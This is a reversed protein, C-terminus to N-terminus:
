PSCARRYAAAAPAATPDSAPSVAKMENEALWKHPTKEGDFTVAYYPPAGAHAEAVAGTMGKMGPMHNVLAEVRAGVKFRPATPAAAPQTSLSVPPAAPTSAAPQTTVDSKAITASNFEGITLWGRPDPDTGGPLMLPEVGVSARAENVTIVIGAVDKTTLVMTPGDESAALLQPPEIGYADATEDVFDQDVDFGNDRAAKIDAFFAARRTGRSEREADADGDPLMYRRTPALTSDGFNVATWIEISGTQLGRTIATLDGEVKTNAVGFLSEIDVGPAGGVSGLIGDTGLYIRAAAREANEVLQVWVQWASSTNTLFETKSGAPRIGVPSDSTAISRLLEAMAAAEPSLGVSGQADVVQLAVGAPMEGIV